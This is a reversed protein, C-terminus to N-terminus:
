FLIRGDSKFKMLATNYKIKGGPEQHTGMTNIVDGLATSIDSQLRKTEAVIIDQLERNFDAQSLRGSNLAERHRLELNVQIQDQVRQGLTVGQIPAFTESYAKARQDQLKEMQEDKKRYKIPNVFMETKELEDATCGKDKAEVLLKKLIKTAIGTELPAIDRMVELAKVMGARTNFDVGSGPMSIRLLEYVIPATETNIESQDIGKKHKNAPREDLVMDKIIKLVIPPLPIVDAASAPNRIRGIIGQLSDRLQRTRKQEREDKIETNNKFEEKLSELLENKLILEALIEQASRTSATSTNEAPQAAQESQAPTNEPSDAM